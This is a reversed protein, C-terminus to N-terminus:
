KIPESCLFSNSSRLPKTQLLRVIKNIALGNSLNKLNDRKENLFFPKFTKKNNQENVLLIVEM